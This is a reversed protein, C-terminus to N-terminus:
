ESLQKFMQHGGTAALGSVIGVAAASLWDGAPFEPVGTIWAVVGLVGGLAGCLVPIIRRQEDEVLWISKVVQAALLCVVTIAVFEAVGTINM